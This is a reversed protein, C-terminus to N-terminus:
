RYIRLRELEEVKLVLMGVCLDHAAGIRVDRRLRAEIRV